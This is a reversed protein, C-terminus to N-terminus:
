PLACSKMSTVSLQAGDPATLDQLKEGNIPIRQSVNTKATAAMLQTEHEPVSYKMTKATRLVIYQAYTVMLTETNKLVFIQTKVDMKMLEEQVISMTPNVFQPVTLPIQATNEWTM